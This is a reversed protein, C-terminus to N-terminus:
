NSGGKLSFKGAGTSAAYADRTGFFSRIEPKSYALYGSIGVAGAISSRKVAKRCFERRTMPTHIADESIKKENEM